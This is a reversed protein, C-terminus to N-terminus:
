VVSSCLVAPTRAAIFGNAPSRCIVPQKASLMTRHTHIITRRHRCIRRLETRKVIELHRSVVEIEDAEQNEGLTFAAPAAEIREMDHEHRFDIFTQMRTDMVRIQAM